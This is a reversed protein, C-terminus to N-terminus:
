GLARRLRWGNGLVRRHTWRRRRIRRLSRPIRGLGRRIRGLGRRVRRLTLERLLLRGHLNLGPLIDTTLDGGLGLTGAKAGIAWKDLVAGAKGSSLLILFMMSLVIPVRHRM